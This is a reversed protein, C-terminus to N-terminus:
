SRRGLGGPGRRYAPRAAGGHGSAGHRLVVPQGRRAAPHARGCRAASGQLRVPRRQFSRATDHALIFNYTRSILERKPGRVVRAGPGSAFRHGRRPPRVAVAGRAAAVGRALDVPGRGHLRRRPRQEDVVGRAPRLGPGEPRLHLAAVGSMSDSLATAVAYTNDTSANDVITVLSRFPFSEDLFNRLAIIREALQPAENYVPVVIEVDVPTRRPDLDVESPALATMDHM